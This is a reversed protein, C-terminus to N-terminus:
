RRGMSGNGGAWIKKWDTRSGIQVPSSNNSTAGSGLQGYTGAGWAFATGATRLGVFHKAGAAIATWTDSGVGVPTSKDATTGIGLQGVDNFGWTWLTGDSRIAAGSGLGLSIDTWTSTAGLRVPTSVHTTANGNGLLASGAGWMWLTNDTQIAGHVSRGAAIKSWTTLVGVQVPSRKRDLSIDYYVSDVDSYQYQQWGWQWLTGTTKLALATHDSIQVKSWDTDSGIQIPSSVRAHIDKGFLGTVNYGFGYLDGNTKQVYFTDKSAVNIVPAWDTDAGIQVPTSVFKTNHWYGIYGWVWLTGNRIGATFCDGAAVATWDTWTGMQVPTSITTTNGRGLQGDSNNGWVWVTGNTRTAVVHNHGVSVSQWNTASSTNSAWVYDSTTGLGAQYDASNGIAWLTGDSIIGLASEMKVSIKAVGSASQIFASQNTKHGLGATGDGNYGTFWLTGDTKLAMTLDYGCVVDAWNTASGIQKPTSVTGSNGGDGLAGDTRTGWGWMTGDSRIAMTHRNGCSVKLWTTSGVRTLSSVSTTSGLGLKGNSGDGTVYLEGAANIFAAHNHGSISRWTTTSSAIFVPTSSVFDGLNTQGLLGFNNAGWAWLTGNEKIALTTSDNTAVDKWAEGNVQIPLINNAGVTGNGPLGANNTDIGSSWLTKDPAIYYVTNDDLAIKAWQNPSHLIPSSVNDNANLGLRDNKNNGWAYIAPLRRRSIRSSM